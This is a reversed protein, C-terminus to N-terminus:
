DEKYIRPVRAAIDSVVEYNITYTLGAIEDATIEENGNKGLVVVEDEINVDPIQSVDIVTLDMSVRGIVPARQGHVLMFGRSSLLRSYGDAYGIPVTAIKTRKTTEYTSGYGVKFGATVERVQIITSKISMVPKLDIRSKDVEYSPWLGYLSIGPRVMDLQTEPMDIIAASNAVHRFRIDCGHKKLDDLIDGFMSFQLHAHSKDICDANAFHTYVGEIDLNTLSAIKLITEVAEKRSDKSSDPLVLGDCGIGLRGMGTDVKVHVKVRKKLRIGEISLMEASRFAHISPIIEERLMYDLYSPHSYGFLLVPATIGAKRLEVAESIRAVALYEAGNNLSVRASEISGHGYGNAKVVAMLKTSPALLRRLARCNHALAALNIGAVTLPKFKDL